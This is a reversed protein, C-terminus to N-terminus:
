RLGDEHHLCVFLGGNTGIQHLLPFRRFKERRVLALGHHLLSIFIHLLVGSGVGGTELSFSFILFFIPFSVGIICFITTGM